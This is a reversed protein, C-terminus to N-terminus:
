GPLAEVLLYQEFAVELRPERATVRGLETGDVYNRVRYAGEGLGRLEVPGRWSPAYFAYYRRGDREIAHAEPRDFGIDCLRGLYRGKPLMKDRYLSVWHRWEAEKEPTLRYGGPPQPATPHPTDAPWTFKTSVVAGIGVTSAFDRGHDSLEVHDGAFSGGGGLLAKLTKGKHRVQWSSEPDSAPTQNMAAINHFAFSTGCPCLEMVAEPNIRMATRYLTEWFKELGEVSEEPRAHHHAPNYCPAVGNLHQGDLKLGAYGWEGLIRAVLRDYYDITPQYAPCLYFANWWSINHVAGNKDLLLMDTHDHLLDTGPNVALPSLWLRPKMGAARVSAAFAVMDAEGRPFKGRDVYWDGESTQWGDDLVAWEFGLERAKGLTGEVEAVTFNREYGWACWIPGFASEPAAPARLGRDAMLERYGELSAFYDGSHAHLFCMPTEFAAGPELTHEQDSTVGLRVGNKVATVPLSVLLPHREVHGVALGADRRWVDAVPTGGGYDSANMGLFNRQAFGPRVPQVWDRRDEHSAGAFSWFAPEAAPRGPLVHEAVTWGTVKLPVVGDNRYRVRLLAFGPHREYFSVELTAELGDASRATLVHRTGAGFDDELPTRTEGTVRLRPAARDKLRLQESHSLGTLPVLRGGHSWLVQTRLDDAVALAIRGDGITTVGGAAAARGLGLTLGSGGAVGAAMWQLVRRRGVRHKATM